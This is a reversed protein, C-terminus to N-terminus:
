QATGYLIINSFEVSQGGSPVFGYIRFTIEPLSQYEMATLDIKFHTLTPRVTPLDQQDVPNLYGDADSLVVYGRPTASGGRAADFELRDLHNRLLNKVHAHNKTAQLPLAAM